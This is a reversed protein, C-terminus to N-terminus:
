AFGGRRRPTLLLVLERVNRGAEFDPTDFTRTELATIAGALRGSGKVEGRGDALRPQLLGLAEFPAVKSTSL